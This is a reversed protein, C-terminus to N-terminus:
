TRFSGNEIVQNNSRRILANNSDIGRWIIEYGLESLLEVHCSDPIKHDRFLWVAEMFGSRSKLSKELEVLKSKFILSTGIIAYYELNSSTVGYRHRIIMLLSEFPINYKEALESISFIERGGGQRSNSRNGFIVGDLEELLQDPVTEAFGRIMIQDIRKLHSLIPWIPVGNNNYVIFHDRQVSLTLKSILDKQIHKLRSSTFYDQNAAIFFDLKGETPGEPNLSFVQKLKRTKKEIYESTWFGVIELYVKHGYREFMFDPIFAEGSDLIIPQPERILTWPSGTQQFKKAFKEEVSSDFLTRSTALSPSELTEDTGSYSFLPLLPPADKKSMQFEYLKRGTSLSKRMIWAKLAWSGSSTIAPLLKAIAAGYVDTMKVISLPGEISCIITDNDHNVDDNGRRIIGDGSRQKRLNYMLGLKKIGRLVRKWDTGDYVTTELTTCYFMLMQMVSLNYWAVLRAPTMTEFRELVLNEDLDSWMRNAIQRESVRLNSAVTRIIEDRKSATLAFNQRSSEEFLRRRIVHPEASVGAHGSDQPLEQENARVFTSRRELLTSLGRVLKFDGHENEILALRDLVLRKKDKKRCSGEFEEIMKTALLLDNHSGCFIPIISRGRNSIKVRLLNLPIM